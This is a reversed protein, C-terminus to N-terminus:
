EMPQLFGSAAGIMGDWGEFISGVIRARDRQDAAAHERYSARAPELLLEGAAAVGGGVVIRDPAFLPALSALGLGLWWGTEELAALATRDQARARGVVERVPLGGARESLASSSVMAELCGRAGCSCQRGDHDIIVHGLDGACAGTYRLMRGDVIVGGGLGTGIAISLLRRAGVGAGHRHEAIAAANSDVELRAALGTARELARRLPFECLLPLNANGVMAEREADLFGAVSVGVGDVVEPHLADIMRGLTAGIGSVLQEPEGRAPTPITTRRVISGDEGVVGLKTRTGGIDVAAVLRM